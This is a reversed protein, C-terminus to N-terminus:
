PAELGSRAGLRLMVSLLYILVFLAIFYAEAAVGFRWPLGFDVGFGRDLWGSGVVLVAAAAAPLSHRRPWFWGPWDAALDLTPLRRALLPVAVGGVILFGIALLELGADLGARTLGLQGLAGNVLSGGMRWFDGVMLGDGFSLQAAAGFLCAFLLAAFWARLWRSPLGKRRQYIFLGTLAGAIQVAATLPPLVGAGAEALAPGGGVDVAVLLSLLPLALWLWAPPETKLRTLATSEAM